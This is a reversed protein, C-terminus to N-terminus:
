ASPIDANSRPVRGTTAGGHRGLLITPHCLVQRGHTLREILSPIQNRPCSVVSLQGRNHHGASGVTAPRAVSSGVMRSHRDSGAVRQCQGRVAGVTPAARRAEPSPRPRCPRCSGQHPFGQGLQVQRTACRTFYGIARTICLAECGELAPYLKDRVHRRCLRGCFWYGAYGLWLWGSPQEGLGSYRGRVYRHFIHEALGRHFHGRRTRRSDSQLRWSPPDPRRRGRDDDRRIDRRQACEAPQRIGTRLAQSRLTFSGQLPILAWGVLMPRRGSSEVRRGIWPSIAAVIAQPVLIIAAVILTAFEPWRRTVQGAVGPGM